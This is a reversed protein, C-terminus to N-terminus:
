VYDNVRWTYGKVMFYSWASAVFIGILHAMLFHAPTWRVLLYLVSLNILLGYGAIWNFRFMRKLLNPHGKSDRFTYADNGIFNFIISAEIALIASLYLNWAQITTLYWFLSLNLLIGLLGITVYTTFRRGSKLRIRSANFIFEILDKTDLKSSGFQRDYFVLPIEKVRAGVCFLEYLLTSQFAYGRTSIYKKKLRRYKSARIARLGSTCDHVKYMGSVIRAFFNGTWSILRRKWNWDPTDGGPIYRSGIVLDYGNDIEEMFRPILEPPHSLDADMEFIIEASLKHVAYDFGRIYAVGLGEKKGMLLHLNKYEKQLRKVADSTGDPSTDDVVLIHLEHNKIKKFATQLKPILIAINKKENYTPLVIVAKM